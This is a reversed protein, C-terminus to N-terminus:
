EDIELVKIQHALAHRSVGLLEAAQQKSESRRLAESVLSKAVLRTVDHLNRGPEFRVVLRWESRPVDLGLHRRRITEPSHLMITRELVNRLERINGPWHYEMLLDLADEAVDPHKLLGMEAVLHMLLEDVLLPLDETRERLSPMTIPFVNLRYYLDKRFRGNEVEVTLDRNTAAFIRANVTVSREGGVRLFSRTDLFSLLKSQLLIDLEGIENLLLTGEQALELIGRKRGRTGTFAGPEHGFLESEALERPLAACNIDFFPGKSRKSSRHIFRALHDKGSGSEGLLLVIGEQKAARLALSSVKRFARSPYRKPDTAKASSAGQNRSRLKRVEDDLSRSHLANRVSVVMDDPEFPKTLYDFAGKRAAEMASRISGYGTIIIFEAQPHEKRLEEMLKSGDADPLRLDLLVVEPYLESMKARASAADFVAEAEYGEARLRKALYMALKKEDDVVLVVGSM